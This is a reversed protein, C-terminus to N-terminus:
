ELQCVAHYLWDLRFARKPFDLRGAVWAGGVFVGHLWYQVRGDHGRAAREFLRGEVEIASGDVFVPVYGRETVEHEVVSPVLARAVSQVVGELAEVVEATFRGLYEGLRRSDPVRELGLLTRGVGDARLVDVDSLAGGGAVQSAALSLLMQADTAGRRRRKLRVAEALRRALGLREFLRGLFVWGGHGTLRADTFDIEVTPIRRQVSRV